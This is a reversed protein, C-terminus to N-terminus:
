RSTTVVPIGLLRSFINELLRVLQSFAVMWLAIRRQLAIFYFTITHDYSTGPSHGKLTLTTEREPLELFPEGWITVADGSVWEGEKAPWIQLKGYFVAVRVMGACGPPFHVGLRIIVPHKVVITTEVPATAPTNAPVTLTKQYLV